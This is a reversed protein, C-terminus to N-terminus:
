PTEVTDTTELEAPNPADSGDGPGDVDEPTEEAPEEPPEEDAVLDPTEADLPSYGVIVKVYDLRAPNVAAIVETDLGFGADDAASEKVTGIVIGPPFRSGATVIVNGERVPEEASFVRLILRDNDGTLLGSQSTVEDM